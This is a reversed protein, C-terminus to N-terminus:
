QQNYNSNHKIPKLSAYNSRAKSRVRMIKEYSNSNMIIDLEEDSLKQPALGKYVSQKENYNGFKKNSIRLGPSFAEMKAKELKANCQKLWTENRFNVATNNSEQKKLAKKPPKPIFPKKSKIATSSDKSQSNVPKPSKGRETLVKLERAQSTNVESNRNIFRKQVLSNNSFTENAPSKSQNSTPTLQTSRAAISNIFSSRMPRSSSNDLIYDIIRTQMAINPTNYSTRIKSQRTVSDYSSAKLYDDFQKLYDDVKESNKQERTHKNTNNKILEKYMVKEEEINNTKLSKKKREELMGNVKQSSSKRPQENNTIRKKEDHELLLALSKELQSNFKLKIPNTIVRVNECNNDVFNRRRVIHALNVTPRKKTIHHEQFKLTEHLKKTTEVLEENLNDSENKVLEKEFVIYSVKSGKVESLM